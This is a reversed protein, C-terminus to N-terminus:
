EAVPTIRALQRFASNLCADSPASWNEDLSAAIM